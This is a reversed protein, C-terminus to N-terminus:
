RMRILGDSYARGEGWEMQLCLCIWGRYCQPTNLCLITCHEYNWYLSCIIKKISICHRRRPLFQIKLANSLLVEPVLPFIKVVALTCFAAPKARLVVCNSVSYAATKAVVHYGRHHGTRYLHETHIFLLENVCNCHLKLSMHIQMYLVHERKRRFVEGHM